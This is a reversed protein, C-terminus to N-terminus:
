KITNILINFATADHSALRFIDQDGDGDVDAVQGNYIGQDTIESRTWSLGDGGNLFVTVPYSTFELNKARGANVGAIVDMDGDLDMDALQMSQAAPWEEAIIHETWAGNKPDAAEYWALPYGARESHSIFVDARGDGNADGVSVKTANKSWDGDQNHWKDDISRVVWEGTLDAGPNELWYGNAAVDPDGDGDLDGVDMGEHLNPVMFDQVKTWSDPADQRFVTLMNKQYTITVVDLKGDGNFDAVSVDKVFEPASGILVPKWEPNSYWYINTPASGKDWEGQHEFGLVDIDGDNDFDGVDLDGAAFTEGKPGKEAITHRVWSRGGDRAELWGLWGGHGNNDQLAVDILGDSNLDALGRAWWLNADTAVRVTDFALQARQETAQPATECAALLLVLGLFGSPMATLYNRILRKMFKVPTVLLMFSIGGFFDVRNNSPMARISGSISALHM